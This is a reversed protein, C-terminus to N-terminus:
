RRRAHAPQLARTVAADAARGVNRLTAGVARQLGSVMGRAGQLLHRPVRARGVTRAGGVVVGRLGAAIREGAGLAAGAGTAADRARQALARPVIVLPRHGVQAATATASARLVAAQRAQATAAGYARDPAGNLRTVQRTQVVVGATLCALLILLAVSRIRSMM